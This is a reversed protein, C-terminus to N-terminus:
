LRPVLAVFRESEATKMTVIETGDVNIQGRLHILKREQDIDCWRIALVERIRAGTYAATAIVPAFSRAKEVAAEVLADVPQASLVLPQRANVQRPRSHSQLRGAAAPNFAITGDLVAKNMVMRLTKLANTVTWEALPKGSAGVKGSRLAVLFQEVNAPTVEQVRRRGFFANVLAVYRLDTAYTRPRVRGNRSALWEGALTTVTVGSAPAIRKAELDALLARRAKKAETLNRVLPLTTSRQRGDRDRYIAVWKGSEIY